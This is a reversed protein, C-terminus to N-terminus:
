KGRTAIILLKAEAASETLVMTGGGGTLWKMAIRHKGAAVSQKDVFATQFNTNAVPTTVNSLGNATDVGDVSYRTLNGVALTNNSM